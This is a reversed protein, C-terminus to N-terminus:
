LLVEKLQNVNDITLSAGAQYLANKARQDGRPPICGIPTVKSALATYVDDATDGVYIAQTLKLKKLALNLGYPHPKGKGCPIDDMTILIPFFETLGFKQLAYEAEVRPRGTYIALQYTKQLASLTDKTILATEKQILGKFNQGLYYQQFKEIVKGRPIPFGRDNLLAHTLDWDNNYGSKIKYLAIEDAATKEGSFYTFTKSIAEFYSKGVDVLVGDMDFIIAKPPSLEQLEAILADNEAPTGITIRIYENFLPYSDLSRVRINKAALQATVKLPKGVKLLIFNTDTNLATYNLKELAKILRKKEQQLFQVEKKLYNHDSLAAKAAIIATSSVAYPPNIKALEKIHEAKAIIYGLRLGALAYAKSFSRIIILQPYKELLAAGNNGGYHHYTEDLLLPKGKTFELLKCITNEDITQGLPSSPNVVILGDAGKEMTKQVEALPFDYSKQYPVAIIELEQAKLLLPYMAYNPTPLVLKAGPNFFTQLAVRIAEDAGCTLIINDATINELTAIDEQLSSAEPYRLIDDATINKLATLVKPSPGRPNENMDLCIQKLRSAQPVPYANIKKLHERSNIM